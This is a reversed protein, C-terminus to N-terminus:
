VYHFWINKALLLLKKWRELMQNCVKPDLNKGLRTPMTKLTHRTVNERYKIIEEKFLIVLISLNIHEWWCAM